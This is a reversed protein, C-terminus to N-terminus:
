SPRVPLTEGLRPRRVPLPTRDRVALAGLTVLPVLVLNGLLMTRYFPVAATYCELLGAWTSPYFTGASLVWVGFNTWLFFWTSAGVGFITAGLVVARRRRLRRLLYSALVTVAWASWTFLYIRTNGILVDSAAVVLLPVTWAVSRPLLLVAAVASATVLELNPAYMAGANVLRWALAAAAIAVAALVRLTM